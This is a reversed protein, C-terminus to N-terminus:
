VRRERLVELTEQLAEKLPKGLYPNAVSEDYSEVAEKRLWREIAEHELNTEMIKEATGLM